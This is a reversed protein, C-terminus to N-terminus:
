SALLWSRCPEIQSDALLYRPIQFRGRRARLPSPTRVTQSARLAQAAQRALLGAMTSRGRRRRPPPPSPTPDFASPHRAAAAPSRTLPQPSPRTPLFSLSARVAPSSHAADSFATSSPRNPLGMGTQSQKYIEKNKILFMMYGSAVPCAFNYMTYTYPVHFPTGENNM